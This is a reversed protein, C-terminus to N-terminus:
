KVKLLDASTWADERKATAERVQKVTAPTVASFGHNWERRVYTLVAAIQEDSLVALSPMDLEYTQGKVKIPGRLGHLIIRVLRQPPGAIWESQALPPALGEQGMGHPQHCPVCAMEYVTKGGNFLIREEATLPAAPKTKRTAIEYEGLSFKAADRALAFPSKEVIKRLAERDKSSLAFQSQPLADADSSDGRGSIRFAAARVYANADKLYTRDFHGLGELTWLAYLRALDSKLSKLLPIANTDQREVILRQATDRVWGNHHTLYQVLENASATALNPPPKGGRTRPVIRYIRGLHIPEQLGRDEAQRRLYPTLYIGHQLIGHYMDVVYLAGDPGTYLNVPRFREDTSTVFESKEYANEATIIGDKESLISRRIMNAAPECVFANGYYDRPFLDGRYIVTGCAATFKDLRGDPKLTNPLYGRNVGPNVRGPWVTQDAAIKHGLGPMKSGPPKEALYHTPLLDGRLHDSNSTYVLRGYDDQSLGWQARVPNAERTWNGNSFRYRYGHYLSYIWNDRALLLGNACHEPNKPDGYDSAIEVKEDSVDDGNTDRCFWLHPPEAILAGGRVCAVARPMILSDLFVTKKDPVGDGNIDELISVRGPIDREGKGDANPMFGRMEVVWIRGREDFSLAVPEEVMPESAILEMRFGDKLTFTKLAEEPPLAPAPPIDERPVRVISQEDAAGIALILLYLPIM